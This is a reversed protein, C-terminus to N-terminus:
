AAPTSYRSEGTEFTEPLAAAGHDATLVITCNKLGVRKELYAFFEALMRDTRLTIDMVEQSDPGMDHGITDNVSFSFCLVDTVGRRGLNEQELVQRVFEMMVESKFPTHEFAAYFEPSVEPTGGDLKKPFTRSLGLGVFEGEVDDPGQVLYAEEPLLREWTRGFYAEVRGSDNFTQVWAPLEKMYYTSSIMRGQDMWYAADALKGGLLVASRDKSSVSIVKPKGARALKLEDPVTTSLFNRPSCGLASERGPRRASPQSETMGLLQVSDDDVSNVRLFSARDIWDNAIIGHVDAHVGSLMLAHGAATKTVSHRYHCDVFHAGRETFLKFGAPEFHAKFRELYDYRLQDVAIMVVLSPPNEAAARVVLLLFLSFSLCLKPVFNM